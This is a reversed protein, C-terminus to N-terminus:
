RGAGPAADRRLNTAVYIVALALALAFWQVAYAIHRLPPFGPAAWRRQYGDAEAADLLVVEAAQAFAREDLLRGIEGLSPFAAVVPFPPALPAPTGMHIGPRPLLDTRGRLRREDSAVAVDPRADRSAGLPIWGRNVLLWGGRGLAFPTIVFYGAHGNADFMNDILIQRAPDYHGRAEVHQYRPLRPTSADVAVTAGAGAAFEDFLVRKEGARQLQWRGLWLLVGLVLLTLLTTLPRPAFSGSGIKM